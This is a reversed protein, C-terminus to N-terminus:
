TPLNVTQQKQGSLWGEWYLVTVHLVKKSFDAATM